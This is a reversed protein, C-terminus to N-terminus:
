DDENAASGPLFKRRLANKLKVVPALIGFRKLLRKIVPEIRFHWAYHAQFLPDRRYVYLQQTERSGTAWSVKNDLFGGLFEYAEYDARGHGEELEYATLLVGPSFAAYAQDHAIHLSLFRGDTILGFTAAIPNGGVSLTRIHLNRRPGFEYLLAMYFDAYKRNKAVGLGRQPKWSRSEVHQYIEFGEIVEPWTEYTRFSVEGQAELHKLSRKLNKKFNRSKGALFTEWSGRLDVWPCPPGQVVGLLLPYQKSLALATSVVAGGLPQEHLFMSDWLDRNDFLHKLIATVVERDDGNRLITPRDVESHEGIFKLLKRPKRMYPVSQIWFPAIARVKAGQYAVLILPWGEGKLHRWWIQQFEYSQFGTSDPTLRLLANWDGELTKWGIQTTIQRVTLGTGHPEYHQPMAEFRVLFIEEHSDAVVFGRKGIYRLGARRAADRGRTWQELVAPTSFGYFPLREYSPGLRSIMEKVMRLTYRSYKPKVVFDAVYLCEEASIDSPCSISFYSFVNRCDFEFYVLMFGVLEAGHFLGVGLNSDEWEADEIDLRVQRGGAQLHDPYTLREIEAIAEADNRSIKRCHIQEQDRATAQTQSGFAKQQM